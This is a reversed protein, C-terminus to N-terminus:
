IFCEGFKVLSKCVHTLCGWQLWDAPRFRPYTSGWIVFISRKYFLQRQNTPWRDSLHTPPQIVLRGSPEVLRCVLYWVFWGVLWGSNLSWGYRGYVSWCVFWGDSRSAIFGVVSMWGDSQGVSRRDVLWGSATRVLSWQKFKWYRLDVYGWKPRVPQMTTGVLMYFVYLRVGVERDSGCRWRVMMRVGKGIMCKSHHPAQGM